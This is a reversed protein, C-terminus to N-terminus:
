GASRSRQPRGLVLRALTERQQQIRRAVADPRHTRALQARMAVSIQSLVAENHVWADHTEILTKVGHSGDTDALQEFIQKTDCLRNM